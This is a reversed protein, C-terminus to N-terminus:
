RRVGKRLFYRRTPRGPGRRKPEEAVQVDWGAAPLARLIRYVTRSQIGTEDALEAVTRKGGTLARVVTM